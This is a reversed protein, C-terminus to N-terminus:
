PFLANQKVFRDDDTRCLQESARQVGPVAFVLVGSSQCAFMSVEEAPFELIITVVFYLGFEFLFPPKEM